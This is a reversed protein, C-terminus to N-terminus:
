TRNTLLTKEPLSAMTQGADKVLLRFKLPDVPAPEFGFYESVDRANEDKAYVFLARIAGHESAPLARLLADKLLGRGLKDGQYGHDVALRALNMVPVAKRAPGKHTRKSAPEHEISGVALSYYGAVIDENCVECPKAANARSFTGIMGSNFLGSYKQYLSYLM